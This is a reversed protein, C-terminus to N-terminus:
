RARVMVTLVSEYAGARANTITDQPIVFNLSLNDSDQQVPSFGLGTQLDTSWEGYNLLSEEERTQYGISIPLTLDGDSLYFDQGSGGNTNELMLQYPLLTNSDDSAGQRKVKFSTTGTWDANASGTIVLLEDLDEIAILDQIETRVEIEATDEAAMAQGTAFTSLLSIVM